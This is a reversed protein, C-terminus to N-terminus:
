PTSRGHAPHKDVVALAALTLEHQGGVTNITWM